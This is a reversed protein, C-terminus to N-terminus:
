RKRKPAVLGAPVDFAWEQWSARKFGAALYDLLAEDVEFIELHEQGAPDADEPWGHARVFSRIVSVAFGDPDWGNDKMLTRLLAGYPRPIYKRTLTDAPMTGLVELLTALLDRPSKGKEEAPRARPEQPTEPPPPAPPRLKALQERGLEERLADSLEFRVVKANQAEILAALQRARDALYRDDFSRALAEMADDWEGLERHWEAIELANAESGDGGFLAGELLARLLLPRRRKADADRAAPKAGGFFQGDRDRDNDLWLLGIALAARKRLAWLESPDPAQTLRPLPAGAEPAAPHFIRDYQRFGAWYMAPPGWAPPPLYFRELDGRQRLLDASSCNKRWSMVLGCHPCTVVDTQVGRWNGLFGDSYHVVDDGPEFTRVREVVLCHNGCSRCGCIYETQSM